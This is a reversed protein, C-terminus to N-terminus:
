KRFSGFKKNSFYSNNFDNAFSKPMLASSVKEIPEEKKPKHRFQTDRDPHVYPYPNADNLMRHGYMMAALADCHGLTSTREFDTRLKNFRGAELSQILFRLSPDIEHRNQHFSVQLSNISARWDDKVPVQIDYEHLTSLDIQTQGHCDAFRATVKGKPLMEEMRRCETVIEWTSTNPEFVREGIWLVKDRVYDYCYLLAVTKDRVGGFDIAIQGFYHPPLEVPKVHLAKDFSPIVVTEHNRVVQNLYEVLWSISKPGGARECAKAIDEPTLQPNDYITYEHLSDKLACRPKLETLIYHDPQDKDITTVDVIKGKSLLVQPLLVQQRAYIYDDSNVFCGEEIIILDANGGRNNDVHARELAGLRLSSEGVQWRYDSKQRTILGPPADRSIKALNDAVIDQVMKLTPALIRTITGPKLICNSLGYTDSWWSKGLQRSALILVEDSSSTKVAADIKRQTAHLKWSLEGTLWLYERTGARTIAM